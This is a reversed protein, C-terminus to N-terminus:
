RGHQIGDKLWELYMLADVLEEEIHQIRDLIAAPNDEIGQGYDRLGKERQKNAIVCINDWYPNPSIM